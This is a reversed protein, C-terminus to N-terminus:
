RQTLINNGKAGFYVQTLKEQSLQSKAYDTEIDLKRQLIQAVTEYQSPEVYLIEGTASKISKKDLLPMSIILKSDEAIANGNGIM